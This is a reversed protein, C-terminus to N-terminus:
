SLDLMCWMEKYCQNSSYVYKYLRDPTAQFWIEKLCRKETTFINSYSLGYKLPSSIYLLCAEQTFGYWVNTIIETNGAIVSVNISDYAQVM